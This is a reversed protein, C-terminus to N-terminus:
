EHHIYLPHHSAHTKCLMIAYPAFDRSTFYLQARPTMTNGYLSANGPTFTTNPLHLLTYGYVGIPKTPYNHHPICLIWERHQRLPHRTSGRKQPNPFTYRLVSYLTCQVSYLTCQVFYVTCQVNYVTCQVNYM